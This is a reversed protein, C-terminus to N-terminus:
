TGAPLVADESGSGGDSGLAAAVILLVDPAGGIFSGNAALIGSMMTGHSNKKDNDHPANQTEHIFDKFGVLNVNVLDPHTIDIGTDVICVRVGDGSFGDENM